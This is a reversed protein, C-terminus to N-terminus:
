LSALIFDRIYKHLTVLYNSVKNSLLFVKTWMNQMSVNRPYNELINQSSKRPLVWLWDSVRSLTVRVM